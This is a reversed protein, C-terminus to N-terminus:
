HGSCLPCAARQPTDRFLSVPDARVILLIAISAVTLPVLKQAIANRRAFALRSGAFSIALLTPLTGLGFLSMFTMARFAQGQAISATAAMYVLGCPLLGNIAGLTFIALYSRKHLSTGFRKKLFAPIRALAPNFRATAFLAVLMLAGTALSLWRQFGAFVISQGVVGFLLGILSYVGIRGLHYVARSAVISARSTGVVPTLLVLPGCMGACHLSGMLGLLLAAIM